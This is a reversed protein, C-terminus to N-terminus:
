KYEQLFKKAPECGNAAAKRICDLWKKQNLKMADYDHSARRLNSQDRWSAYKSGSRQVIEKVNPWKKYFKDEEVYLGSLGYLYLFTMDSQMRNSIRAFISHAKSSNNNKSKTFLYICGLNFAADGYYSDLKLCREYALIAKNEDHMREPAGWNSMQVNCDYIRGIHYWAKALGSEGATRWYAIAVEYDGKRYADNGLILGGMPCKGKEFQEEFWPIVLAWEEAGITELGEDLDGKEWRQVFVRQAAPKDKAASYLLRIGAKADRTKGNRGVIYDLAVEIEDINEKEMREKASAEAVDASQGVSMARYKAAQVQNKSVWKGDEYIDALKRCADCHGKDAAKRFNALARIRDQRVGDGNEYRIGLQYAAEPDGQSALRRCEDLSLVGANVGILIAMSCVALCFRSFGVM